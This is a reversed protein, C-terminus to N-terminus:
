GAVCFAAARSDIMGAGKGCSSTRTAWAAAAGHCISLGAGSRAKWITGELLTCFTGAM